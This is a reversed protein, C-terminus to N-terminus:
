KRIGLKQRAFKIDMIGVPM